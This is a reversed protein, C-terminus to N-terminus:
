AARRYKEALVRNVTRDLALRPRRPLPPRQALRRQLPVLQREDAFGFASLFEELEDRNQRVAIEARWNPRVLPLVVLVAPADIGSIVLWVLSFGVVGGLVAGIVIQQKETM